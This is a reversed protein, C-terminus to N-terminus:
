EDFSASCLFLMNLLDGTGVEADMSNSSDRSSVRKYM